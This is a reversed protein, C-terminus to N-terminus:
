YDFIHHILVTPGTEFFSFAFNKSIIKHLGPIASFQLILKFIVLCFANNNLRSISAEKSSSFAENSSSKR